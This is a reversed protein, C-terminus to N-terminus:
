DDSRIERILVKDSSYHKYFAFIIFAFAILEIVESLYYSLADFHVGVEGVWYYVNVAFYLGISVILSLTISVLEIVFIGKFAENNSFGYRKLILIDKENFRFLMFALFLSLLLYIPITFILFQEAGFDLALSDGNYMIINEDFYTSFVKGNALVDIVNKFNQDDLYVVVDVARFHNNEDVLNALLDKENIFIYDTKLTEDVYKTFNASKYINTLTIESDYKFANEKSVGFSNQPLSSYPDILINSELSDFSFFYHYKLFYKEHEKKSTENFEYELSGYPSYKLKYFENTDINQYTKEYNVKHFTNDNRISLFISNTVSFITVFLITILLYIRNAKLFKKIM